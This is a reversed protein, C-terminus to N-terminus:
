PWARTLAADIVADRAHSAAILAGVRDTIITRGHESTPMGALLRGLDISAVPKESLQQDLRLRINDALQGHLRAALRGADDEASRLAVYATAGVMVLVLAIFPALIFARIPLGSRSAKSTADAPERGAVWVWEPSRLPRERVHGDIEAWFLGARRSLPLAALMAFPALLWTVGTTFFLAPTISTYSIEASFKGSCIYGWMVPEMVMFVIVFTLYSAWTKLQRFDPNKGLLQHAIWFCAPNIFYGAAWDRLFAPPVGEILDSLAYAFPVVLLAPYGFLVVCLFVALDKLSELTQAGPVLVIFSGLYGSVTVLLFTLPVSFVAKADWAQRERGFGWGSGLRFTFGGFACIALALGLLYSLRGWVELLPLPMAGFTAELWTIIAQM